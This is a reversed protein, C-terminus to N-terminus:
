PNGSMPVWVVELAMKRALRQLEGTIQERPRGRLLHTREAEALPVDARLAALYARLGAADGSGDHRLFYHTLLAASNYLDYARQAAVQESWARSSMTMLDPPAIVRLTRSDRVARWKLLYERLAAELNQFTYRGRIYPTAAMTEALGEKLWVPLYRNWAGMVQHTVEHKLVFLHRQHQTSLGNTTAQIGVNPLLILMERGNFFGGSGEAGGAALYGDTTSFLRVRYSEPERPLALGLPVGRVAARTAEFVAALDRVVGLPLKLDSAIAFHPSRYTASGSSRDESVLQVEYSEAAIERPWPEAAALATLFTLILLTKL